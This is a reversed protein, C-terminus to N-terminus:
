PRTKRYLHCTLLVPNSKVKAPESGPFIEGIERGTGVGACGPGLKERADVARIVM